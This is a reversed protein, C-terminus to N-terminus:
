RFALAAAALALVLMASLWLLKRRDALKPDPLDAALTRMRESSTAVELLAAAVAAVDGATCAAGARVAAEGATGAAARAAEARSPDCTAIWEALDANARAQVFAASVQQGRQYAVAAAAARARAAPPDGPPSSAPAPPEFAIESPPDTPLRLWRVAWGGIVIILGTLAVAAFGAFAVILHPALAPVGTITATAACAGSAIQLNRDM